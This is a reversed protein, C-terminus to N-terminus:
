GFGQQTWFHSQKRAAKSSLLFKNSRFLFNTNCRRWVTSISCLSDTISSGWKDIYDMMYAHWSFDLNSYSNSCISDTRNKYAM